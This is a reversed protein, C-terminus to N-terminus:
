KSKNITGCVTCRVENEKSTTNQVRVGKAYMNDQVQHECNGKCKTTVVM